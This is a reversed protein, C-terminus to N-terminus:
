GKYNTKGQKYANLVKASDPPMAVKPRIGSTPPLETARRADLLKNNEEEAVRIKVDLDMVKRINDQLLKVQPKFMDQQAELEPGIDKLMKEFMNDCDKVVQIAAQKEENMGFIMERVGDIPLVSEIVTRQNESISLIETLAATKKKMGDLMINLHTTMSTEAM